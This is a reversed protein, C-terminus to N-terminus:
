FDVLASSPCYVPIEEKNLVASIMCGDQDRSWYSVIKMRVAGLLELDRALYFIKQSERISQLIV